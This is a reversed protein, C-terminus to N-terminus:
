NKENIDKLLGLAEVANLRALEKREEDKNKINNLYGEDDLCRKIEEYVKQGDIDNIDIIYDSDISEM